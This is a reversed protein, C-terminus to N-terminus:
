GNVVEQKSAGRKRSEYVYLPPINPLQFSRGVLDLQESLYYALPKGKWVVPPFFQYILINANEKLISKAAKIISRRLPEEFFAFPVGSIIADVQNNGDGHGLKKLIEVANEVSDHVLEFQPHEMLEKDKKLVDIFEDNLDIAVLKADPHLKKLLHRTFCGGGPGFEVILRASEFDIKNCIRKVCFSSTPTISGVNKDAIFNKIYSITM